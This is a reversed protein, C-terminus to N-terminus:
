SRNVESYASSSMLLRAGRVEIFTRRKSEWQRKLVKGLQGTNAARMRRRLWRDNDAVQLEEERVPEERDEGEGGGRAGKSVGDDEGDAGEEAHRGCRTTLGSVDLREHGEVAARGVVRVPRDEGDEVEELSM